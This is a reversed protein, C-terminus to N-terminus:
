QSDGYAASQAAQREEDVEGLAIEVASPDDIARLDGAPDHPHSGGCHPCQKPIGPSFGSADCKITHTGGCGRCELELEYM